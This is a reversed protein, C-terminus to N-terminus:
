AFEDIHGRGYRNPKEKKASQQRQNNSQQRQKRKDTASKKPWVPQVAQIDRVDSM